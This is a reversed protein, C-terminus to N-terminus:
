NRGAAVLGEPADSLILEARSSIGLKMFVKRLHYEITRPSLFLQAAVEKNSVQGVFQAVQLEQPTFRASELKSPFGNVV